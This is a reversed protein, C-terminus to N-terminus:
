RYLLSNYNKKVILSVSRNSRKRESLRCWGGKEKSYNHWLWVVAQTIGAQGDGLCLWGALFWM